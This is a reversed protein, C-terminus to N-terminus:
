VEMQWGAATSPWFRERLPPITRLRPRIRLPTSSRARDREMARFLLLVPPGVLVAPTYLEASSLNDFRGSYGNPSVSGVFSVGGAILVRGDNLLTATHNWRYAQMSATSGFTGKVSDYIEADAFFFIGPIVEGWSGGALLVNGDSLLTATHGSRYNTMNETATFIGSAPDYLEATGNLAGSSPSYAVLVNGNMLLTATSECCAAQNVTPSFTGTAPDYIEDQIPRVEFYEPTILVKGSALLTAKGGPGGM